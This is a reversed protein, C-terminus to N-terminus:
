GQDPWRLLVLEACIGPGHAFLVGPDGPEQGGRALTDALVHLVGSSSLNGVRELSRWSLELAEPPLELARTAADLIKPGGTHAVWTVVDGIKLEHAALLDAVDDGLYRGVVDPLSAELVIRFGSGGIGWGLVGHTEPYLHSRTAVVEPGTVGLTAAREDGVMVVAAAGDGFLGSAVLNAMSDDGPQMTLSCLEVSVLVAVDGPHGQLYDHVRAIGAAGAVCGLGFVPLRKVDRRLGLRAVLLADISPASIGTVSTFLIFDVDQPALGAAALADRLARAALDTGLSIFLDNAQGFTTLDRYAELPMALHRTRVGSSAHLRELVARRPSGDGTLLSGITDTIEHQPYRFEPLTGTVSAIRSM